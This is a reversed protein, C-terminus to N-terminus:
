SISHSFIQIFDDTQALRYGSASAVKALAAHQPPMSETLIALPKAKLEDIQQFLKRYIDLGDPGGFIAIRPENMAAPNITFNDPVYPLNCLLISHPTNLIPYPFAALLDGRYFEVSAGLKSANKRALALCKEDIDSALVSAGPIELKATTCLAGSGTGIDAIVLSKHSAALKKALEIMTESEPRPELVHKNIAFKRGYFESLGRIQALPIHSARRAIQKDLKKVLVSSLEFGPHGLLWARDKGSADELLVLADLRATSIGANELESTAIALWESTTM